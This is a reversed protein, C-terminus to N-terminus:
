TVDTTSNEARERLFKVQFRCNVKLYDSGGAWGLKESASKEARFISAVGEESVDTWVFFYVAGCGLFRCEEAELYIDMRTWWDAHLFELVASRINM